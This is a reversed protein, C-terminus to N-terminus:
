KKSGKNLAYSVASHTVDLLKAIERLTFGRKSLKFAEKYDLERPRGKPPPPPQFGCKPCKMM